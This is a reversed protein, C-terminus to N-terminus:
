LELARVARGGQRRLIIQYAVCYIELKTCSQSMSLLGDILTRSEWGFFMM